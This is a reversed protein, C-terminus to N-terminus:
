PLVLVGVVIVEGLMFELNAGDETEVEGQSEPAAEQEEITMAVDAGLTAENAQTGRVDTESTAVAEDAAMVDYEQIDVQGGSHALDGEGEVLPEEAASDDEMSDVSDPREQVTTEEDDRLVDEARGLAHASQCQEAVPQVLLSDAYSQTLSPLEDGGEGVNDNVEARTESQATGEVLNENAEMAETADIDYIQADTITGFSSQANIAPPHQTEFADQHLLEVRADEGQVNKETADHDVEGQESMEINEAYEGEQADDMEGDQACEKESKAVVDDNGSDSEDDKEDHGVDDDTDTIEQDNEPNDNDRREDGNGDDGAGGGSSNGGLGKDEGEGGGNEDEGADRGGGNGDKSSMSGTNDPPLSDSQSDGNGAVPSGGQQADGDGIVGDFNASLSLSTSQSECFGLTDTVTLGQEQVPSAPTGDFTYAPHGLTDNWPSSSLAPQVAQPSNADGEVDSPDDEGSDDAGDGGDPASGGMVQISENGHENVPPPSAPGFLGEEQTFDCPSNKDPTMVFESESDVLEDKSIENVASPKVLRFDEDANDEDGQDGSEDEVEELVDLSNGQTKITVGDNREPQAPPVVVDSSAWKLLVKRLRKRLDDVKGSTEAGLEDLAHALEAKRMAKVRRGRWAQKNPDKEAAESKRQILNEVMCQTADEDEGQVCSVESDPLAKEREEPNVESEREHRLRTCNQLLDEGQAKCASIPVKNRVQRARTPPTKPSQPIQETGLVLGDQQTEPDKEADSNDDTDDVEHDLDRRLAECLSEQLDAKLRGVPKVGMDSLHKKLVSVTMDRVRMGGVSGEVVETARTKESEAADRWCAILDSKRSSTPKLGFAKIARRLEAVTMDPNPGATLAKFQATTLLQQTAAKMKAETSSTTSKRIDDENPKRPTATTSSRVVAATVNADEDDSSSILIPDEKTKPSRLLVAAARRKEHRAGRATRSESHQISDVSEEVDFGQLTAADSEGNAIDSLLRHALRVRLERQKGKDELGLSDLIARMEAVLLRVLPKGKYLLSDFVKAETWMNRSILPEKEAIGSFLEFDEHDTSADDTDKGDNARKSKGKGKGRAKGQSASTDSGESSTIKLAHLAARAVEELDKTGRGHTFRKWASDEDQTERRRLNPTTFGLQESAGAGAGAGTPEESPYQPDGGTGLIGFYAQMNRGRKTARTM